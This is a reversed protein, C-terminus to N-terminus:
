ASRTRSPSDVPGALVAALREADGPRLSAATIRVAPASHIRFREGPAVALGAELLRAVASEEDAVPIWVNLGSRGHCELGRAELAGIVEQRSREYAAEARSMLSAVAPDQWLTVVAKQLIHSVWGTGLRQRSEVRSVTTSDGALVALRLDPGLSKSVSRVVAWRERASSLTLAAAGAM